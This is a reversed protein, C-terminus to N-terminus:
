WANTFAAEQFVHKLVRLWQHLHRRSPLWSQCFCHQVGFEHKKENDCLTTHNMRNMQLCCRCASPLPAGETGQLRLTFPEVDPFLILKYRPHIFM